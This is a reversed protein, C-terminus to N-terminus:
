KGPFMLYPRSPKDPRKDQIWGDARPECHEEIKLDESELLLQESFMYYAVLMEPPYKKLLDILEIVTM